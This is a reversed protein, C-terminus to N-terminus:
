DRQESGERRAALILPRYKEKVEAIASLLQELTPMQGTEILRQQEERTGTLGTRPLQGPLSFDRESFATERIPCDCTLVLM